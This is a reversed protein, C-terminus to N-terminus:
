PASPFAEFMRAVADAVLSRMRDPDGLAAEVDAQAWGRWLIERTEADAIDVLFTGEQYEHPSM